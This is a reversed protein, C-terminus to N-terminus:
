FFKNTYVGKESKKPVSKKRAGISDANLLKGRYSGKIAKGDNLAGTISITYDTESTQLIEFAGSTMQYGIQNAIDLFYVSGNLEKTYDLSYSGAKFKEGRSFAEIYITYTTKETDSGKLIENNTLYFDRNFEDWEEDYGFDEFFGGKFDYKTSGIEFSKKYEPDLKDVASVTLFSGTYSGKIAKGNDLKGDVIISYEATSRKEITFTGTTLKSGTRGEYFYFDGNRDKDYNTSYIGSQFQNGKSFAKVLIRNAFEDSLNSGASFADSTLAFTTQYEEGNFGSDFYGAGTFAIETDQVKFSKKTLDFSPEDDGSCGILFLFCLLFLPNKRIM